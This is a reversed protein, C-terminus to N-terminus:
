CNNNYPDKKIFAYEINLKRLISDLNTKCPLKVLVKRQPVLFTTSDLRYECTNLSIISDYTEVVNKFDTIYNTDKVFYVYQDADFAMEKAYLCLKKRLSDKHDNVSETKLRIHRVFPNETLHIRNHNCYYYSSQPFANTGLLILLASVVFFRITKM